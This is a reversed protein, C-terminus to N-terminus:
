SGSAVASKHTILLVMLLSCVMWVRQGDSAKLINSTNTRRCQLLEVALLVRVLVLGQVSPMAHSGLSKLTRQCGAILRWSNRHISTRHHHHNRQCTHLSALSPLAPREWLTQIKPCHILSNNRNSCPPHHSRLAMTPISLATITLAALLRQLHLLTAPM